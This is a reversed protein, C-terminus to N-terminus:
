WYNETTIHGPKRRRNKALGREKLIATTDQVMAPNGCLMVQSHEPTIKLGAHHELRGEAIAAPVRGELGGPFPERSVFPIYQFRKADREQFERITDQYTLEEAKRVAHVLRINEFREWPTDTKLISLFPGLATGTSLLWLDRSDPLEDLTFFGTARPMLEVQDGPELQVLRNSLPGDPVTILYFDLPTEGPANVYSYPRGVMEGDIELRLRNFQGAKFPEVDADVRLSFLRDTWQKRERVVGTVWGM